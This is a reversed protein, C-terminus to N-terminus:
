LQRSFQSVGHEDMFEEIRGEDALYDLHSVVEIVALFKNFGKVNPYYVRSLRYPSVANESGRPVIDYIQDLRNKHFEIRTKALVGPDLVPDGHGPLCLYPNIREIKEMSSFIDSLSRVRLNKMGLDYEISPIASIEPLLADGSLLVGKEEWYLCTHGGSHGPMHLLQLKLGSFDLSCEGTYQCVKEIPHTFPINGSSFASTGLVEEPLGMTHLSKRMNNIYDRDPALRKYEEDRVFIEAGTEKQIRGAAGYHDPHGHTIIIRKIDSINVGLRELSKDLQEESPQYHSGPDIITMPDATILYSNIDGVPFPTPLPIKIIPLPIETLQEEM